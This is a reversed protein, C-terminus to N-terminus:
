QAQPENIVAVNPFIDRVLRQLRQDTTALGGAYSALFAYNADEFDNEADRTENRLMAFVYWLMIRYWRGAAHQDPWKSLAMKWRPQAYKSDHWEALSLVAGPRRIERRFVDVQGSLAKTYDPATERMLRVWETRFKLFARKNKRYPQEECVRECYRLWAASSTSGMRRLLRSQVPEIVDDITSRSGPKRERQIVQIPHRGLHVRSLNATLVSQLKLRITDAPEESPTTTSRAGEGLLLDSIIYRHKAPLTAIRRQRLWSWDLVIWSM